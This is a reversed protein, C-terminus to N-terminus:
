DKSSYPAVYEKLTFTKDKAMPFSHLIMQKHALTMTLILDAWEIDNENVQSTKHEFPINEKELVAKSNESIGGGELAYIGASKVHVGDLQKHKLIAEAMPSRCTNGTCVFYINMSNAESKRKFKIEFRLQEHICLHIFLYKQLNLMGFSISVSFTDLSASVALIPVPIPKIQRNQTSLILHLGIFFLLTSSILNSWQM